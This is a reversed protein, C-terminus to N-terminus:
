IIYKNECNVNWKFARLSGNIVLGFFILSGNIITNIM